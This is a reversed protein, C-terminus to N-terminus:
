LVKVAFQAEVWIGLQPVLFNRQQPRQRSAHAAQDVSVRPAVSSPDPRRRGIAAAPQPRAGAAASGRGGPKVTGEPVWQPKNAAILKARHEQRHECASQATRNGTAM